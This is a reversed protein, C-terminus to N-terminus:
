DCKEGDDDREMEDGEDEGDAGFRAPAGYEREGGM